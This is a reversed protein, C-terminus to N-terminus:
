VECELAWVLTWHNAVGSNWDSGSWSAERPQDLGAIRGVHSQVSFRVTLLGVGVGVLGLHNHNNWYFHTYIHGLVHSFIMPLSIRFILFYSKKLYQVSSRRTTQTVMHSIGSSWLNMYLFLLDSFIFKFLCWRTLRGCWVDGYCESPNVTDYSGPSLIKKWCTKISMKLSQYNTGFYKSPHQDIQACKWTKFSLILLFYGTTIMPVCYM